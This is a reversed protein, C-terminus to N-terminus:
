ICLVNRAHRRNGYFLQYAVTVTAFKVLGVTSGNKKKKAISCQFLLSDIHSQEQSLLM